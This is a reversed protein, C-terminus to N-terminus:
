ASVEAHHIETSCHASQSHPRSEHRASGRLHGACKTGRWGTVLREGPAVRAPRAPLSGLISTTNLLRIPMTWDMHELRLVSSLRQNVRDSTENGLRLLIVSPLQERSVAMLYGFDLDMTLLVRQEERVKHLICEDTARQLGQERVHITEHGCSRLWEATLLSINMDALFKM